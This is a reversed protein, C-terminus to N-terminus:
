VPVKERPLAMEYAKEFGILSVLSYIKSLLNSFVDAVASVHERAVQLM